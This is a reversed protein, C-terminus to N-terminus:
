WGGVWGKPRRRPDRRRGKEDPKATAPTEELPKSWAASREPLSRVLGPGLIYLAALSYVTLDLAENRERTKIWDRVSGRGKVWKRVAKEATLQALYEVDIWDPLHVFGPGPSAIRLRSYIIEKATDVCLTYLKARYQNRDTPRLPVVPKSKENGGRVAFTRAVKRNQRARCFRYVDETHHGGSDVAVLSVQVKRGAETEFEQLLFKDLEFWTREAKPDGVVHFYAVLWSEESAGYGVVQAELRDDQVDVSAVLVGVGSPVEAPYAEIRAALDEPNVSDAREEWTEGLVTNVFVKLKLPDRKGELFEAVCEAWSKWGLPSYLASLHYGRFTSPSTATPRWEGAELMGGKNREEVPASCGSCIMRASEPRGEDWLIRHHTEGSSGLWNKGEWTLFDMMGCEPCPIFYRRQDSALFEAEIRSLKRITPTSALFIKRRAFTAARKEALAVPDGEGRTAGGVDGPYGDVEDLLVYRASLRRLGLPSNAGVLALYGGTFEKLLLTNGSDRSRAESVKGRLRPSAEIMPAIRQKSEAIALDRSPEVFLIPGPSHDIAYGVINNIAETAGIQSGKMLVVKRTGNHSSISDMIERLYPTRSTRWRGPEASVSSSLIRHRDAWASVTLIPDPEWGEALADLYVRVAPSTM